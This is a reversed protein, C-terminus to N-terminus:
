KEQRILRVKQNFNGCVFKIVYGVLAVLWHGFSAELSGLKYALLQKALSEMCKEQRILRM